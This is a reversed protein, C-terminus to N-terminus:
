TVIALEERHRGVLCFILEHGVCIVSGGRGPYSGSSGHRLGQVCICQWRRWFVPFLLFPASDWISCLRLTPDSNDWAGVRDVGIGSVPAFYAVEPRDARVPFRSQGIGGM